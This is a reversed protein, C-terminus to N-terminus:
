VSEKDQGDTIAENERKAEAEAENDNGEEDHAKSPERM